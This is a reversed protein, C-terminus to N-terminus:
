HLPILLGDTVLRNNEVHMVLADLYHLRVKKGTINKILWNQCHDHTFIVMPQNGTGASLSLLTDPLSKDCQTLRDVTIPARGAFYIATQRTRVTNTSYLAYQGFKQYFLHGYQIARSASKLTIGANDSLCVNNSRDCREGHRFLFIVPHQRAINEVSSVDVQLVNKSPILILSLCLIFIVVITVVSWLLYVNCSSKTTNWM